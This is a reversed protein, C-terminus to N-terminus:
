PLVATWCIGQGASAVAIYVEALDIAGGTARDGRMALPTTWEAAGLAVGVEVDAAASVTSGGVVVCGDSGPLRSIHVELAELPTESLPVPTDALPAVRRGSLIRM